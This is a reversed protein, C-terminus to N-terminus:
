LAATHLREVLPSVDPYAVHWFPLELNSILNAM